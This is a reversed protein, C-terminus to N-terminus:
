KLLGVEKYYKIAGPHLPISNGNNVMGEKTLHAFAPHLKKFRDFNEFVAKVVNYVVEDSVDTTSVLTAAVGFSKVDDPTGNYTGGPLTTYTFYPNESVIKDIKEGEVSILKANCSTTAEKIAGSPHGVIYVFADIKNDCLAQSRESGKLESALKFDGKSWGLADMVLEMTGRDGSGPNGINVRKGKLDQISNINADTRAIINFPETHISFVARLKKYPGQEKFKSTGNYGHYQWDSQAIGFDLEGARITNINYISGGTSEVNCRIHNDKQARNVLKCIAGGTPYYVGTVSGTGITIFTTGEEALASASYGSAVCAAALIGTKLYKVLTM